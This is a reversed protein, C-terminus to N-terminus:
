SKRSASERDGQKICVLVFSSELPALTVNLTSLPLSKGQIGMRSPSCRPVVLSRRNPINGDQQSVRFGKRFSCYKMKFVHLHKSEAWSNEGSASTACDSAFEPIM